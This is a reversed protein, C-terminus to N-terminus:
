GNNDGSKFVNNTIDLYLSTVSDALIKPCINWDEWLKMYWILYTKVENLAYDLNEKHYIMSLYDRFSNIYKAAEEYNYDWDTNELESTIGIFLCQINARNEEVTSYGDIYKHTIIPSYNKVPTLNLIRM